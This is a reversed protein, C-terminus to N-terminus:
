GYDSWQSLSYEANVSWSLGKELTVGFGYKGPTVIKGKNGTSAYVSDKQIKRFLSFLYFNWPHNCACEPQKQVPCLSRLKLTVTKSSVHPTNREQMFFGGFSHQRGM